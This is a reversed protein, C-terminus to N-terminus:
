IHILALVVVRTVPAADTGPLATGTVVIRGSNGQVMGRKPSTVRLEPAPPTPAVCATITILVLLISPKSLAQAPRM